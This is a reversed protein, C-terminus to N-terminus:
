TVKFKTPDSRNTRGSFFTEGIEIVNPICICTSSHHVVTHRIVRDLTLTVLLQFGCLIFRGDTGCPALNIDRGEDRIAYAAAALKGRVAVIVHCQVGLQFAGGLTISDPLTITYMLLELSIPRNMMLHLWVIGNVPLRTEV